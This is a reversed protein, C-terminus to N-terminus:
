NITASATPLPSFGVLAQTPGRWFSCELRRRNCLPKPLQIPAQSRHHTILSISMQCEGADSASAGKAGDKEDLERKGPPSRARPEVPFPLPTGTMEDPAPMRKPADARRPLVRKPDDEDPEDDFILFLTPRVRRRKYSEKWVELADLGARIADVKHGYCTSGTRCSEEQACLSEVPHADACVRSQPSAQEGSPGSGAFPEQSLADCATPFISGGEVADLEPSNPIRSVVDKSNEL